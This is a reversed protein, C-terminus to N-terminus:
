EHDPIIKLKVFARSRPTVCGIATNRLGPIWAIEGNCTLIWARRKQAANYKADSFLDSVLKSSSSGFPIIRDGRRYHRIEWRNAPDHAFTLDFYATENDREPKFETISHRSLAIHLPVTIDRLLSVPYVRECPVASRSDSLSLIGRSLEAVLRGDTSMFRLGSANRGAIIKLTQDFTFNLPRLFEYLVTACEPEESIAAVDINAGDVYRQRLQDIASHFITRTSELHSISRLVADMAGPFQAEMEPLLINRLRNRLFVSESNTSDVVYELGQQHLYEEIRTRSMELLPRVIDGARANMSTLGTIGAGRMLNIFFTEVRDERHHGVAIAQAGTSDAIQRFWAYRLERCAMETSEGTAEMRAAVDFHRVMLDVGLRTTLEMCFNQDRDSEKGRLHFNCHAALCNYGLRTLVALLAVSDAGGSLAVILPVDPTLLRRRRIFDFIEREFSNLEKGTVAM